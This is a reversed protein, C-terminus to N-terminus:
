RGFLEAPNDTPKKPPPTDGPVTRERNGQPNNSRAQDFLAAAGPKEQETMIRAKMQMKPQSNSGDRSRAEVPGGSVPLFEVWLYEIGYGPRFIELAAQQNPGIQDKAYEIQWHNKIPFMQNGDSVRLLVDRRWLRGEASYGPITRNVVLGRWNPYAYIGLLLGSSPAASAVSVTLLIASIIISFTPRRLM